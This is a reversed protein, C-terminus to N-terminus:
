GLTKRFDRLLDLVDHVPVNLAQQLAVKYPPLNTCELVITDVGLTTAMKMFRVQERVAAPGRRTWVKERGDPSVARELGELYNGHLRRALEDIEEDVLHLPDAEETISGFPMVRLTDFGRGHMHALADVQDTNVHQDVFVPPSAAGTQAYARRLGIAMAMNAHDDGCCVYLGTAPLPDLMWANIDAAKIANPRLDASIFRLRACQALGPYTALMREKLGDVGATTVVLVDHRLIDYVNAGVTPLVDVGHINRSAKLFGEDVARDVILASGWGLAKLKAAMKELGAANADAMAVLEVNPRDHFIIDLGHGYDGRGTHGIIAAKFEPSGVSWREGTGRKKQIQEFM